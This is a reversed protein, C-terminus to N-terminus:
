QLRPDFVERNEFYTVIEKPPRKKIRLHQNNGVRYVALVKRSAVLAIYILPGIAVMGSEYRIPATVPNTGATKFYAACARNLWGANNGDDPFAQIQSM